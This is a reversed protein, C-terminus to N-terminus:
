QREAIGAQALYDRLGQYLAMSVPVLEGDAWLAKFDPFARALYPNRALVGANFGDGQYRKELQNQLKDDPASGAALEAQLVLRACGLEVPLPRCLSQQLWSLLQQLQTKAQDAQYAPLSFVGDVAVIDTQLAVGSAAALLQQLWPKLLQKYDLQKDKYLAGVLWHLQVFSAAALPRLERLWDGAQQGEAAFECWVPQPMPAGYQSVLQQLQEAQPSLLQTFQEALLTAASAVPLLGEAGILALEQNLAQQWPEGATLAKSIRQQLRQQLQWRELGDLGFNETNQQSGHDTEFSVKLRQRFFFKVPDKLWGSLRDLDWAPVQDPASLMNSAPAAEANKPPSQHLALWEHQYSVLTSDAALYRRSFPQLPHHVTIADLVDEGQQVSGSGVEVRWVAALHDRLQGVLVSPSRESNDHVSHGVWSIRLRQRASLLAELFLYRDDDRRSRDGPRYNTAMLDFDQKIMQRPFDGDNMGLLHIQAFPIARMPMLTAFNVAGALFRQALGQASFGELWAVSVVNLELADTLNAQQCQELWETLAQQLKDLLSQQVEDEAAFFDALLQPLWAAWQEPTRKEASQQWAQQLQDLLQALQGALAASLGSVQACPAIGQWPESQGIAYGLLMRQLGSHWSNQAFDEPLGLSQRQAANLGWRINAAEIWSKLLQIDTETFGFRLQLAPLQLLDLVTSATFRETRLQLLLQLAQLLPEQQVASQDAITFPIYRADDKSIRGFVASIAAAYLHIDPVMVMVDAPKLQPDAAFQALLDDHLIEVERMASHATAFCLSQAQAPNLAPWFAASEVAPRLELIDNQLQALLHTPPNSSFLDIRQGRFLDLHAQTEDFQDLLRIYDRGQKGWAALLPQAQNHLQEPAISELASHDSEPKQQTPAKRSQRQQQTKLLDKDAIIDAWYHQCPNHVALLVQTYPAIAALAELVQQPLSSIGFVIVRRPLGAPRSDMRYKKAAQLFNRHLMARSFQQEASPVDAIIARWLAAQWRQDATLPTTHGLHDLVVDKGQQWAALWDARYVQYQDFLDALKFALQQLKRQEEDAALYSHLLQFEQQEALLPLLRFLRWRLQNKDFGSQEPIDSAPLLWRYLQWIFRGPMQLSLNSAIGAGGETPDNFDPDAALALKLWQAIGNSQVLVTETELVALPYAKTWSVVLARLQEPLNAHVVLFGPTLATHHANFM